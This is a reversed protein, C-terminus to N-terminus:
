KYNRKSNITTYCYTMRTLTMHQAASGETFLQMEEIHMGPRTSEEHHSGGLNGM